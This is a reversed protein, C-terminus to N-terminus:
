SENSMMDGLTLTFTNVATTGVATIVYRIWEALLNGPVAEDLNGASDEYFLTSWPLDTANFFDTGNYSFQKQIQLTTPTGSVDVSILARHKTYPACRVAASTYTTTAANFVIADVHVNYEIRKLRTIWGFDLDTKRENYIFGYEASTLVGEDFRVKM